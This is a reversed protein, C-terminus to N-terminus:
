KHKLFVPAPAALNTGARDEPMAKMIRYRKKPKSQQAFQIVKNCTQFWNTSPEFTNADILQIYNPWKSKDVKPPTSRKAFKFLALDDDDDSEVQTNALAQSQKAWEVKCLRFWLQQNRGITLHEKSSAAFRCLSVADLYSAIVLKVDSAIADKALKFVVPEFFAKPVAKCWIVLNYRSGKLMGDSYHEAAGQHVIANGHVHDVRIYGTETFYNYDGQIKVHLNGGSMDKTSSLMVNITVDSDDTHKVHGKALQANSADYHVIMAAMFRFETAERKSFQPFLTQLLPSITIVLQEFMSNYGFSNLIIGMHDLKLSPHQKKMNQAELQLADCMELTLLPFTFVENKPVNKANLAYYAPQLMSTSFQLYNTYLHQYAVQAYQKTTATSTNGTNTTEPKEFKNGMAQM